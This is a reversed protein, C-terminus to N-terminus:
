KPRFGLQTQLGPRNRRFGSAYHPDNYRHPLHRHRQLSQRHPEYMTANTKRDPFGAAGGASRPLTPDNLNSYPSYYGPGVMAEPNADSFRKKDMQSFATGSSIASSEHKGYM